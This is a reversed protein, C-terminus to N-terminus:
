RRKRRAPAKKPNRLALFCIKMVKAGQTSTSAKLCCTEVMAMRNKTIATVPMKTFGHTPWRM